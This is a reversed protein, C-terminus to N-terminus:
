FKYGINVGYNSGRLRQQVYADDELKARLIHMQFYNFNFSLKFHEFFFIKLTIEGAYNLGAISNGLDYREFENSPNRIEGQSAAAVIGFNPMIGIDFNLWKLKELKLIFHRQIGINWLNIGNSHELKRFDDKFYITNSVSENNWFGIRYYEQDVDVHYTLHSVALHISYKKSLDLGVNIRFQPVGLEGKFLYNLRNDKKSKVYQFILDRNYKEQVFRINSTKFWTFQIGYSVELNRNVVFEEVKDFVSQSYISNFIFLFFFLLVLKLNRMIKTTKSTM